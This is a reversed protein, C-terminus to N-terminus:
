STKVVNEDWDRWGYIDWGAGVQYDTQQIDLQCALLPKM